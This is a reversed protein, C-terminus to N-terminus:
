TGEMILKAIMASSKWGKIKREFASAETSTDFSRIFVVIWDKAKATYGSHASLHKKLRMEVNGNTFGVYYKNLLTSYLIYTTSM